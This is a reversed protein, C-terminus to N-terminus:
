LGDEQLRKKNDMEMLSALKKNPRVTVELGYFYHGPYDFQGTVEQQSFEIRM